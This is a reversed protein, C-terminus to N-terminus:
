AKRIIHKLGWQEVIELISIIRTEFFKRYLFYVAWVIGYSGIIDVPYHHGVYIRSFGVWISLVMFIWGIPKNIWRLGAAMSMSVTAHDSPFSSDPIHPYLLHVHHNIFPRPIYAVLGLLANIGLGIAMLLFTHIAGYRYTKHHKIIGLLFIYCVAAFMIYTLYKSSFILLGDINGNKGALNNIFHFVILNINM